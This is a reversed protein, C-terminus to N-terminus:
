VLKDAKAKADQKEQFKRLKEAKKAEEALQKATKPPGDGEGPQVNEDSAQDPNSTAM